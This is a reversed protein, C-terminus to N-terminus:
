SYNDAVNNGTGSDSLAGSTNSKNLNGHVQNGNTDATLLVGWNDNSVTLNNSVINNDSDVTGGATALEIGDGGNYSCLNSSIINDVSGSVLIGDQYNYFMSNNTVIIGKSLYLWLGYLLNSSLTNNNFHLPQTVATAIIECGHEENNYMYNGVINGSNVNGVYLGGNRNNIFISEYISVKTERSIHAGYWNNEFVCNRISLNETYNTRVGTLQEPFTKGTRGDIISLNHIGVNDKTRSVLCSAGSINKGFYNNALTLSTDSAVSAVSFPITNLFIKDGAVVGDTSFQTSSGTVTGTESNISITGTDTVLEGVVEVGGDPVSGADESYPVSSLSIITTDRDEGVLSVNSKLAIKATPYYTGQKLLVVGGGLDSVYNIAEQINDTQGLKRDPSVVIKFQRGAPNIGTYLIGGPRIFGDFKDDIYDKLDDNTTTEGLANKSILRDTLNLKSYAM